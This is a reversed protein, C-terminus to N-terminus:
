RRLTHRMQDLWIASRLPDFLPRVDDIDAGLDRLQHDTLGQLHHLHQRHQRSRILASITGRVM